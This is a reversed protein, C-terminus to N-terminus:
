LIKLVSDCLKEMALPKKFFDMAGYSKCKKELGADALATIVIISPNGYDQMKQLLSMGDIGPLDLDLIIGDPHNEAMMSGFEFGDFAQLIKIDNFKKKLSTSIVNNLAKDDDTILIKKETFDSANSCLNLLDEPIKMKRDHMFSALDEPYVRYQSGPTKFAKLYGGRIWNIVTQNVVGCINAVELASFLVPKKNKNYM